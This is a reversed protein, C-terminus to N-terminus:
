PVRSILIFKSKALRQQLSVTRLFVFQGSNFLIFILITAALESYGHSM